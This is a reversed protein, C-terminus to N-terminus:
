FIFTTFGSNPSVTASERRNVSNETKRNQKGRVDRYVM